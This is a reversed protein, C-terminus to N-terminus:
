SRESATRILRVDSVALVTQGYPIAASNKVKPGVEGSESRPSAVIM